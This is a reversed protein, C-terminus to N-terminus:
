KNKIYLTVTNNVFDEIEKTRSTPLDRYYEGICATPM